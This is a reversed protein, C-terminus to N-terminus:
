NAAGKEPAAEKSLTILLTILVTTRAGRKLPLCIFAAYHDPYIVKWANRFGHAPACPASRAILYLIKNIKDFSNLIIVACFFIQITSTCNYNPSAALGPDVLRRTLCGGNKQFIYQEAIILEFKASKLTRLKLKYILGIDLYFPM